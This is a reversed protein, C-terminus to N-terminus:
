YIGAILHSPSLVTGLLALIQALLQFNLTAPSPFHLSATPLAALAAIPSLYHMGLSCSLGLSAPAGSLQLLPQGASQGSDRCLHVWVSVLTVKTSPVPTFEGPLSILSISEELVWSNLVFIWSDDLTRRKTRWM